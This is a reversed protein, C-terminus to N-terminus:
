DKETEVEIGALEFFKLLPYEAKGENCLSLDGKYWHVFFIFRSEEPSSTRRYCLDYVVGENGGYKVVEGREFTREIKSRADTSFHSVSLDTEIGLYRWYAMHDPNLKMIQYKTKFPFAPAKRVTCFYNYCSVIMCVVCIMYNKFKM